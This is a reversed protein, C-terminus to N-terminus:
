ACASLCEGTACWYRYRQFQLSRRWVVVLYLVQWEILRQKAVLYIDPLLKGDWNLLLQDDTTFSGFVTWANHLEFKSYIVNYTMFFSSLNFYRILPTM